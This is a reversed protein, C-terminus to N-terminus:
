PSGVAREFRVHVVRGADLEFGTVQDGARVFRFTLGGARLTDRGANVVRADIGAGARIRLAGDVEVLYYDVDLEPSHYTGVYASPDAVPSTTPADGRSGASRVQESPRPGLRDALVVDAVSRARASPNGDARNCLAVINTRESPFRLVHARFGVFSGGHGVTPLGRYEGHTQGMAYDIQEGSSLVGRTELMASLGPRLGDTALANVWHVMDDISSYVGGDGIMDLTTMSTRFSGEALPAYGDARLPVIHDHDDHFHSHTMGLPGFLVEEAYEKFPKGVAREVAEALLFYGSNSYLFETGPPFNLEEQRVQVAILEEGTYFDDGRLGRLGTLTLYDRLGSTHNLAHLVTLPQGYDPLEPIWKRMPDELNLYGETAAIAVIAATFQKSVSGTRFVSETTIPIDHELNALGYGRGYLLEGGRVVGLACGPVPLETFDAFVADVAARDFDTRASQGSTAVPSVLSALAWVFVVSGMRNVQSMMGGRESPGPRTPSEGEVYPMVYFLFGDANGSDHLPLIHPHQFNATTEIEAFFREAGVVAALEPKLVKLAVNRNHKLDKALYVTAM